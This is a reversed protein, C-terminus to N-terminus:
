VCAEYARRVRVGRACAEHAYRTRMGRAFAALASRMHMEHPALEDPGSAQACCRGGDTGTAAYASVRMESLWDASGVAPWETRAFVPLAPLTAPRHAQSSICIEFLRDAVFLTQPARYGWPVPLGTASRSLAGLPRGGAM